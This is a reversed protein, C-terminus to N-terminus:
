ATRADPRQWPRRTPELEVDTTQTRHLDELTVWGDKNIGKQNDLLVWTKGSIDSAVDHITQVHAGRITPVGMPFLGDQKAQFLRERTPLDFHWYSETELKYPEGIYPMKKGLIMESAALVDSQIFEPGDIPEGGRMKSRGNRDVLLDEGINIWGNPIPKTRFEGMIYRTGNDKGDKESSHKGLEYVGNVATMQYIQSALNRKDANPKDLDYEKEDRGPRLANEPLKLTTGAATTYKESLAVQRLLDTYREPYRAAAYVETTTVNCTPHYGQDIETPNAINHMGTEVIKNLEARSYLPSGTASLIETLNDLAKALQEPSTGYRQSMAGLNNLYKELRDTNLGNTQAAARFSRSAEQWNESRITAEQRDSTERDPQEKNDAPKTQDTRDTPKKDTKDISLDPLSWPSVRSWNNNQPETRNTDVVPHPLNKDKALDRHQAIEEGSLDKAGAGRHHYHVEQLSKFSFVGDKDVTMYGHWNGTLSKQGQSDISWISYSNDSLRKFETNGNLVFHSFKDPHAPDEYRFQRKTNGDASATETIRGTEDTKYTGDALQFQGAKTNEVTKLLAPARGPTKFDHSETASGSRARDNTRGFLSKSDFIRELLDSETLGRWPSETETKGSELHLAPLASIASNGTSAQKCDSNFKSWETNDSFNALASDKAEWNIKDMLLYGLALVM